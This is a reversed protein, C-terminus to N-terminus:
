FGMVLNELFILVHTCCLASILTGKVHVQSVKLRNNGEKGVTGAVGFM